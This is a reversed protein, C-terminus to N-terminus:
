GYIVQETISIKRETVKMGAVGGESRRQVSVAYEIAPGKYQFIRTKTSGDVTYVTDTWQVLWETIMKLAM